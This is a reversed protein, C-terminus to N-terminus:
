FWDRETLLEYALDPDPTDELEDVLDPWGFRPSPGSEPQEPTASSRIGPRPTSGAATSQCSMDGRNM